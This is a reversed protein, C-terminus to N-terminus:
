PTDFEGFPELHVLVDRLLTFDNLLSDKVKHGIEHGERVSLAPDVQIHVDVFYELGTKRVWLKEIDCVGDVCQASARIREVIDVDAQPDMLESASNAYLRFGSVLIIVVIVLAAVEDAWILDHGGWRVIGLGVLVAFSCLADARHDWANALIASSKTRKGVRASYRFLGEKLIVNMGAVWLTWAPPIEHALTIRSLAQWGVILAAIIILLAVTSAGVAEARSHGYPHHSDAPKQAVRLSGLVIVSAASDGLSNISDAILAFSHGLIGAFLKGIGLSVNVILGLLAANSAERYIRDRQRDM